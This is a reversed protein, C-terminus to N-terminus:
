KAESLTALELDTIRSNLRSEMADIREELREFSRCISVAIDDASKYVLREVAEIDAETLNMQKTTTTM